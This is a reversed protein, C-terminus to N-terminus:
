QRVLESVVARETRGSPGRSTSHYEKARCIREIEAINSTRVGGGPMVVIRDGARAVLEALLFRGDYSSPQQGSTLLRGCGLAIIDELARFPDSARDFARHFTVPLPSAAEVLRRMMEMDVSGDSRLAGIVVGDAGEERCMRIDELMSAEEQSSFVFDGGRPRVLVNVPITSEAMAARLLERSPTVGGVELRGCLEIRSAGGAVAERVDQLTEACVEIFRPM